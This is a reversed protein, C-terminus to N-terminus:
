NKHTGTRLKKAIEIALKTLRKSLDPQAKSYVNVSLVQKTDSNVFAVSSLNFFFNYMEVRYCTASDCSKLAQNKSNKIDGALVKRVTMVENRLPLKNKPHRTYQIFQKNKIAILQAEFASEENVESKELLLVPIPDQLAAKISEKYKVLEPFQTQKARNESSVLIGTYEYINTEPKTASVENEKNNNPSQDQNCSSLILTSLM